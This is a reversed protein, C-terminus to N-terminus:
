NWKFNVLCQLHSRVDIGGLYRRCVKAYVYLFATKKPRQWFPAPRPYLYTVYDKTGSQSLDSTFQLSDYKVLVKVTKYKDTNDLTGFILSPSMSSSVKAIEVRFISAKTSQLATSHPAATPRSFSPTLCMRESNAWTSQTSVRDRICM